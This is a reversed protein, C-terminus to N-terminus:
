HLYRRFIDTTTQKNVKRRFPQQLQDKWIYDEVVYVKRIVILSDSIRNKDCLTM